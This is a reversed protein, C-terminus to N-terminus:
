ESRDVSSSENGLRIPECVITGRGPLIKGLIAYKALQCEESHLHLFTYIVSPFGSLSREISKNSWRKLWVNNKMFWAWKKVLWAWKGYAVGVKRRWEWKEDVVDM